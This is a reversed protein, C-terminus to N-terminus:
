LINVEPELDIGFTKSVSGQIDRSLKLLEKGSGGGYNVLVLPQREHVGIDGRRKGKWGCQQILWAAPIKCWDNNVKFSPMDPYIEELAEKLPTEVMPNKFFSGANGIEAPDPLKNQRIQIVAESIAAISLQEIGAAELTSKLNGYSVNFRHSRKTLRLRVKTIIFKGKLQGKFISYRYGFQCDDLYFTRVDGTKINLADLSYFIEKLEVGYAGINQIPAAGLTGPILSLNETGGLDHEICWLVFQHWIVGAGIEVIVHDSHDEIVSIGDIEVKLFVKRQNGTLLINSGSGLVVKPLPNLRPTNFVEEIDETNQIIALYQGLVDLGFTNYPQLSINHHLLM